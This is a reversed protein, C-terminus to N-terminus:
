DWDYFPNERYFNHVANYGASRLMLYIERGDPEADPAAREEPALEWARRNEDVEVARFEPPLRRSLYIADADDAEVARRFDELSCSKEYAHLACCITLERCAAEIRRAEGCEEAYFHVSVVPLRNCVQITHSRRSIADLKEEQLSM